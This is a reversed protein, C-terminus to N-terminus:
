SGIAIWNFTINSASGANTMCFATFSTTNTAIVSGAYVATGTNNQTCTLVVIPASSFTKHFNIQSDVSSSLTCTGCDINGAILKKIETNGTYGDSKFIVNGYENNVQMTHGYGMLTAIQNNHYTAFNGANIFTKFGGTNSIEISNGTNNPNGITVLEDYYQGHVTKQITGNITANNCTLDGDKTVSFNSSTIAINDATMNITKGRIDVEGIKKNLMISAQELERDVENAYTYDTNTGKPIENYISQKYGATLTIENNFIYSNYTNGGTNFVVSQLRTFKGYGVLETDYIYYSTGKLQNLIATLYYSRDNGNMIQNDVIKYETRGYQAVSQADELYIVDTEYSRSLVITNLPGYSEKFDINKNKLIDDNITISNGGLTAIKIENEDMYFVVGNAEAIDDLIDRYTYGIDEFVDSAITRTGNPLSAINNTYGLATTIAKFYNYITCPYNVNVPSYEVMSKIMADYTKHVYQKKNANYTPEEKLYFKGYTETKTENNYTADISVTFIGDIQSKLTIECSTMATGVLPTEETIKIKEIENDSVNYNQNNYIYSVHKVIQKGAKQIIDNYTM